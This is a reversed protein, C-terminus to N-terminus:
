GWEYFGITEFDDESNEKYVPKFNGGSTFYTDGNWESEILIIGNELYVPMHQELGYTSVAPFREEFDKKSIEEIIEMTKSNPDETICRMGNEYEVYNITKM